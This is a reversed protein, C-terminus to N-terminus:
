AVGCVLLYPAAVREVRLNGTTTVGADVGHWLVAIDPIRDNRM